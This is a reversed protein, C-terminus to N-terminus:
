GTTMLVAAPTRCIAGIKRSTPRLKPALRKLMNRVTASGPANGSIMVPM